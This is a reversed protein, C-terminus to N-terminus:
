RRAPRVQAEVWPHLRIWGRPSAGAARPGVTTPMSRSRRGWGICIKPTSAIIAITTVTIADSSVGGPSSPSPSATVSASTAKTAPRAIDTGHPSM